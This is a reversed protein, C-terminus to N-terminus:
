TEFDKSLFTESGNPIYDRFHERINLTYYKLFKKLKDVEREYSSPSFFLAGM